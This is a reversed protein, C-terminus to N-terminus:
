FSPFRSDWFMSLQAHQLNRVSLSAKTDFSSQSLVSQCLESLSSLWVGAARFAAQDEGERSKGSDRVAGGSELFSQSEPCRDYLMHERLFVCGVDKVCVMKLTIDILTGTPFSCCVGFPLQFAKM